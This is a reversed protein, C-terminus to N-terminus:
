FNADLTGLILLSISIIANLHFFALNVRSLDDPSVISHEYVLLCGVMGVGVFYFSGFAPYSLGLGALAIVMAFHSVAALRLATDVGLRAPLSHLNSQRDFQVDQCAYLIDFGGVWFFVAAALWLAPPDVRGTLAIWAAVPSFALGLGLWYHALSTFRKAYSYGFLWALVPMSLRIPWPNEPLFLLTSALFLAATVLTFLGVSKASLIGSPIHRSATRPNKADLHRDALRNFAMAASRAMVMCLIIGLWEKLGAHISNGPYRIALVGGLVAFPLAFLTHSFRIMGLIHSLATLWGRRTGSESALRQPGSM